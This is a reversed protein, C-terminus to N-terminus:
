PRDQGLVAPRDDHGGRAKAAWSKPLYFAIPPVPQPPDPVFHLKSEFLCGAPARGGRQIGAGGGIRLIHAPAPQRAFLGIGTMEIQDPFGPTTWPSRPFGMALPCQGFARALQVFVGPEDGGRQRVPGPRCLTDHLQVRQPHLNLFGEAVAFSAPPAKTQLIRAAAVGLAPFNEQENARQGRYYVPQYPQSGTGAVAGTVKLRIGKLLPCHERYAEQALLQKVTASKM